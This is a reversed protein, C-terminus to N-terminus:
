FPIEDDLDSSGDDTKPSPLEKRPPQIQKPREPTALRPINREEDESASKIVGTISDLLKRLPELKRGAEGGTDAGELILAMAADFRTRDRSVENELASIKSYLRERKSDSVELRDVIEKIQGLYHRIKQKATPDLAVSYSRTRRAYRVRVQVTYSAVDALIQHYQARIVDDKKNVELDGWSQLVDLGLAKAVSMVSNMYEIQLATDNQGQYNTIETQVRQRLMEEYQVFALEPDDPLNLLEDDSIM